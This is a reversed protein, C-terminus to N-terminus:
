WGVVGDVWWAGGVLCGGVVVWGGVLWWRGPVIGVEQRHQLVLGELVQREELVTRGQPPSPSLPSTALLRPPGASDREGDDDAGFVIPPDSTPADVAAVAVGGGGSLGWVVGWGVGGQCGCSWGGGDRAAVFAAAPRRRRRGAAM